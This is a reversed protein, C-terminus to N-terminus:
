EGKLKAIERKLEDVEARLRAVEDQHTAAQRALLTLSRVVHGQLSAQKHVALDVYFRAVQHLPARV